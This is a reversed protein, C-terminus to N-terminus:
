HLLNHPVKVAPSAEMGRVMGVEEVAQVEMDLEEVVELQNPHIGMSGMSGAMDMRISQARALAELEQYAGEDMDEVVEVM